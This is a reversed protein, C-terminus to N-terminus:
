SHDTSQIGWSYITERHEHRRSIRDSGRVKIMFSIMKINAVGLDDILNPTFGIDVLGDERVSASTVKHYSNAIQNDEYQIMIYQWTPYPFFLSSYNAENVVITGSLPTPVVISNLTLDPLWTPMLWAKQGGRVQDIFERMYDEDESRDYRKIIWQRTGSITPHPDAKRLITKLGVDFDLVESRTSFAEDAGALPRIRMINLSDVVDISVSADPRPLAPQASGEAKIDLKGTISAMVLGSNNQIIMSHCPYVYNGLDIEEGAASGIDVGDSYIATVKAVTASQTKINIIAISEGIRMQTKSSDFYLRNGGIPTTQTLKTAHQYSPIIAQLGMNKFILEYQEQRQELDIIDVTFEMFRRPDRRLSIRQESGDYSTIVETLFEWTEQVPVDPILNFTESVTAIVILFARGLPYNLEVIADVNPEGPGIQLNITQYESDRITSVGAIKDFTLVESGEVAISTLTQIQPFTSWLVFPINTNILPNALRLEKPIIWFRFHFDTYQTPTVVGSSPPAWSTEDVVSMSDSTLVPPIDAFSESLDAYSGGQRPYVTTSFVSRFGGTDATWTGAVAGDAIFAM